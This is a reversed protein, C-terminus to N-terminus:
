NGLLRRGPYPFVTGRVPPVVPTPVVSPGAGRRRAPAPPMNRVWATYARVAELRELESTASRYAGLRWWTGLDRVFFLVYSGVWLLGAGIAFVANLM